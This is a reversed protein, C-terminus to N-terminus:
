KSMNVPEQGEQWGSALGQEIDQCTVPCHVTEDINKACPGYFITSKWNRSDLECEGSGMALCAPILLSVLLLQKYSIKM